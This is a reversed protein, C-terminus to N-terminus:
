ALVRGKCQCFCDAFAIIDNAIRYHIVQFRDLILLFQLAEPLAMNYARTASEPTRPSIKPGAARRHPARHM